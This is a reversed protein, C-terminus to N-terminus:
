ASQIELLNKANLLAAESPNKGSLMEAIAVIRGNEDLTKIQTESIDAENNKYVFLQQNGSCAVQPLHTIALIQQKGGQKRM